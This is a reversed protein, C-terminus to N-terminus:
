FRECHNTAVDYHYREFQVGDDLSFNILLGIPSHTLRLYNFLQMREAAGYEGLAKLEVIIDSEVVLDMRYTKDLKVGKYWLPLEAQEQYRLGELKFEYALCSEYASELLGGRKENYVEYACHIIRYALDKYRQEVQVM